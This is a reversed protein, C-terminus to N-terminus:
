KFLATLTRDTFDLTVEVIAIGSGGRWDAEVTWIDESSPVDLLDEPNIPDPVDRQVQPYRVAFPVSSGDEREHAGEVWFSDIQPKVNKVGWSRTEFDLSWKLYGGYLESDVFEQPPRIYVRMHKRDLPVEFAMGDDEMLRAALIKAQTGRPVNM